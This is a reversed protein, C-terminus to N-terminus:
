PQEGKRVQHTQIMTKVLQVIINTKVQATNIVLHYQSPDRIDTQLYKKVLKRHEAELNSVRRRAEKEAVGMEKMVNKIRLALPAVFCLGIKKDPPLFFNSGRGVIVANGTVAIALLIRKLSAIYEGSTLHHEPDFEALYDAFGSPPNKELTSVLQASVQEDKAIQEVLEWDYLHLDLESCLREAISEAGCGPERTITVVPKPRPRENKECLQWEQLRLRLLRNLEEISNHNKM